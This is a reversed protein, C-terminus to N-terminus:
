RGLVARSIHLLVRPWQDSPRSSHHIGLIAVNKAEIGMKNLTGKYM